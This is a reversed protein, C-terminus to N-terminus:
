IGCSALRAPRATVRCQPPLTKLKEYAFIKLLYETVTAQNPLRILKDTLM